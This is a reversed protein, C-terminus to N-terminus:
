VKSLTGLNLDGPIMDPYIIYHRTTKLSSKLLGAYGRLNKADIVLLKDATNSDSRTCYPTGVKKRVGTGEYKTMKVDGYLNVM